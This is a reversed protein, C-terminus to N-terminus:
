LTTGSGKPPGEQEEQERQCQVCHPTFPVLRLRELDIPEGCSECIGYSGQELRKQAEDLQTLQAKRIDAVALGADSLLDLISHDGLDQPIDYQTHVEGAQAFIDERLEAWLRRKQETLLNRFELEDGELKPPM